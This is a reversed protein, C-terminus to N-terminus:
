KFLSVLAKDLREFSNYIIIFPLFLLFDIFMYSKEM